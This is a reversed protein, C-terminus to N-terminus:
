AVWKISESENKDLYDELLATEIEPRCQYFQNDFEGMQLGYGYKQEWTLFEDYGKPMDGQAKIFYAEAIGPIKSQCLAGSSELAAIVESHDLNANNGFYRDHGGNLVESSYWWALHAKRQVATLEDLSAGSIVDILANWREREFCAYAEKSVEIPESM